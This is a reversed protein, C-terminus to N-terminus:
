GIKGFGYRARVCVKVGEALQNNTGDERFKRRNLQGEFGKITPRPVTPKIHGRHKRSIMFADQPPVWHVQTGNRQPTPSGQIEGGGKQHSTLGFGLVGGVFILM